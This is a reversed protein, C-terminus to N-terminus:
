IDVLKRYCEIYSRASNDWSWRQSLAVAGRSATVRLKNLEILSLIRERLTDTKGSASINVSFVCRIDVEPFTDYVDRSVLVPVGCALAEQVVLPFGEGVSPLVLLDAWHYFDVVDKGRVNDFVEVDKGECEPWFVPSLPGHGVFRWKTGPLSLSNRLLEVGKKEVFRGVFLIKCFGDVNTQPGPRYVRHDVGNTILAPPNDFKVFGSFLERVHASIFSVQSVSQMVLRGLLRNLLWICFRSVRSNYPIDGIHQTLLVPKHLIRAFFISLLSPLYLFDHVHVVDARKVEAWLTLVGRVGWIPVPLRLLREFIGISRVPVLRVGTFADVDPIEDECGGAIWAFNEIVRGCRKAIEGAVVEIGGGHRPFYASVQLVSIGLLKDESM